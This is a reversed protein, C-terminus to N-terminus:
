KLLWEIETIKHIDNIHRYIKKLKQEEKEVNKIIKELDKETKTKEIIQEYIDFYGNPYMFRAFVMKYELPTLIKNKRLFDISAIQEETKDLSKIFEGIDRSRSDLIFNLPNYFEKVTTNKYLRNHSITFSYNIANINNLMLICNEAVGIHYNISERLSPYGKGIQEMQYEIYDNKNSWLTYWNKKTILPFKKSDVNFRTLYLIDNLDIKRDKLNSKLLIYKRNNIETVINQQINLIITHSYIKYMKLYKQLEYIENVEKETKKYPCLIYNINLLEFEFTENIQHVIEVDLGYYYKIANKM